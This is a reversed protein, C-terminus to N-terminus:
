AEFILAGGIDGRYEHVEQASITIGGEVPLAAEAKLLQLWEAFAKFHAEKEAEPVTDGTHHSVLLFKM